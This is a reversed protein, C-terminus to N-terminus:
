PNGGTQITEIAAPIVQLDGFPIDCVPVGVAMFARSYEKKGSLGLIALLSLWYVAVMAFILWRGDLARGSSHTRLTKM